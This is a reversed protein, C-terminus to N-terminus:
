QALIAAELQDDAGRFEAVAGARHMPLNGRGRKLRRHILDAQQLGIRHMAAVVGAGIAAGPGEDGPAGRLRRCLMQSVIELNKGGSHGPCIRIYANEFVIGHNAALLM